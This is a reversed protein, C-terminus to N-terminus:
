GRLAERAAERVAASRHDALGSLAPEIRGSGWDLGVLTSAIALPVSRGRDQLCTEFVEVQSEDEGAAVLRAIAGAATARAQPDPDRALAALVGRHQAGDLQAALLAAHRRERGDGGLFKVLHRDANELHGLAAALVAGSAMLDSEHSLEFPSPEVESSTMANAIPILREAVGDPLQSSRWSLTLLAGRKLRAPVVPESLLELLPDWDALEPHWASLTTLNQAPDGPGIGISGERAEKTMQGVEEGLSVLAAKVVAEPLERAAGLGWLADISGGEAETVLQARAQEDGNRAALGVLVRALEVNHREGAERALEALDGNWTEASIATLVRAWGNELLQNGDFRELRFVQELVQRQMAQDAAPAIGTLAYVLQVDVLYHPSTRRAFAHHDDITELLWGCLREATQTDALDGGFEVFTLDSLGTTRTSLEPRIEALVEALASCPGDARLHALSLKLGKDDGAVRLTTLGSAVEDPDAYRDLRLLEDHGVLTCLRRWGSQDAGHSAEVAAAFLRNHAADESTWKIRSDRAWDEFTREVIDDLGNRVTQSRWWGTPTDSAQIARKLDPEDWRSINLVLTVASAAIASATVDNPAKSRLNRLSTAAAKADELSGLEALARARQVNLWADDVTAAEDRAIEEDLVELGEDPRGAGIALSALCVAAAAREHSHQADRMVERLSYDENEWMRRWLAGVFRWRWQESDLADDLGPVEEQEEAYRELESIRMQALMALAQEPTLEGSGLNPHPAILRPALLAHRFRDPPPIEVDGGWSGELSPSSDFTAAVARLEDQHEADITQVAPVFIKAGKGTSRIASSTVHEWYSSHTKPNHLVVLQPAPFRAWDGLETGDDDIYWWGTVEGNEDKKKRKFYSIGTKVQVGMYMGLEFRREDRPSIVLDTGNDHDPNAMVAWGLYEFKSRVESQGGTGKAETKPARM